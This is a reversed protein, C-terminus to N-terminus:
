YPSHKNGGIPTGIIKREEYLNKMREPYHVKKRVAVTSHKKLRIVRIGKQYLLGNGDSCVANEWYALAVSVRPKMLVTAGHYHYVPGQSLM